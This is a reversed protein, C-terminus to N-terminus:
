EEKVGSVTATLSGQALRIDISDGAKVQNASKIVKSDKTVISYGRDVVRLPSMSDLMAMMRDMRSKKRELSFLLAKESRQALFTLEKKRRDILNQPTGLKQTMLEVRHQKQGISRNMALELRTLLDDNRLELDQLRRKPDVLRKSLGLAKERLFKMKRDFSLKLMRELSTVKNVLEASSKAVLEAAASPTPARLDAVFDAITFDIEHGVASIVPIPSAAILRALGEDNFCWMDEISGGGRGVIVADVDPLAVAKKFAERLQPAAAEGQVITPVITVQISKARRSLVNLIDRIAAGTPSTVIAIHRPFTPIPRKKASDFLGEARLKHKLQEFAKQLAGAGVPEMMDVMLQYNGRPEYVTVRGRVMVEMGDTPKFKLRANNGRFMVATIQSKSDKVSFYFHGSTHAKFNSLEGRVWVMGMQGEILQKIQVNLQEVSLVVPENSKVPASAADLTLQAYNETKRLPQNPSDSM